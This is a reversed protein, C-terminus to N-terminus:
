VLISLLSTRQTEYWKSLSASSFCGASLSSNLANSKRLGYLVSLFALQYCRNPLIAPKPSFKFNTKYKFLWHKVSLKPKTLGCCVYLRPVNATLSFRCPSNLLKICCIIFKIKSLFYDTGFSAVEGLAPVNFAIYKGFKRM